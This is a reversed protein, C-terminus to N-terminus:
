DNSDPPTHSLRKRTEEQLLKYLTAAVPVGIVMGAIGMLGGGVIVAAFVIIGPLGVSTGVVKPYILNGELQQLVIIFLLFFLAKMPNEMLILFAGVGAGLYAGIVPILATAGVFIGITTAHPFRFIWMGLTCLCGIIVAETFQGIIYHSFSEHATALIYRTKQYLSEKLFARLIRETQGSLKEKGVLLYIAFVLAALLHFLSSTFISIVNLSSNFLSGVGKTAHDATNKIISDWNLDIEGIREAIMPFISRHDDIWQNLTNILVPLEALITSFTQVIQPFVINTILILIFLIILFSLILCVPRKWRLIYKNRTRSFYLREIKKMLINLIYAIVFGLALPRIISWLHNVIDIIQKFYLLFLISVVALLFYKLIQKDAKKNKM